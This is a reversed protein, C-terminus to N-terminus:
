VIGMKSALRTIWSKPGFTDHCYHCGANAIATREKDHTLYYSIKGFLDDVNSYPVYHQYPVFFDSAKTTDPEVVLCGCFMAETLRGKLHGSSFNLTIKSRKYYNFYEESTLSRSGSLDPHYVQIGRGELFEIYKKRDGDSGPDGVFSVPIDRETDPNNAIRTDASTPLDYICKDPYRAHGHPDFLDAVYNYVSPYRGEIRPFDDGDCDWWVMIVPIKLVETVFLVTIPHLNTTILDDIPQGLGGMSTPSQSYIVFDPSLSEIITTISSDTVGRTQSFTNSYQLTSEFKEYHFIEHTDCHIRTISHVGAAEVVSSLSQETVSLGLAKNGARHKETIVVVKLDDIAKM